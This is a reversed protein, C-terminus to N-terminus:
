EVSVINCLYKTPTCRSVERHIPDFMQVFILGVAFSDVATGCKEFGEAQEPSFYDPTDDNERFLEIWQAKAPGVPRALGFDAVKLNGDFVLLCNRPNLNYHIYGKLHM